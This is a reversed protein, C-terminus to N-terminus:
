RTERNRRALARSSEGELRPGDRAPIRPPASEGTPDLRSMRLVPAELHQKARRRAARYRPSFHQEDARGLTAGERHAARFVLWTWDTAGLEKALKVMDDVQARATPARYIPVGTHFTADKNLVLHTSIEKLRNKANEKWPRIEAFEVMSAVLLDRAKRPMDKGSLAKIAKTRAANKAHNLTWTVVLNLEGENNGTSKRLYSNRGPSSGDYEHIDQGSVADYAIVLFDLWDWKSAMEAAVAAATTDRDTRADLTSFYTNEIYKHIYVAVDRRVELTWHAIAESLREILAGFKSNTEELYKKCLDPEQGALLAGVAAHARAACLVYGAVEAGVSEIVKPDGHNMDALPKFLNGSMKSDSPAALDVLGMAHMLIHDRPHNTKLNDSM